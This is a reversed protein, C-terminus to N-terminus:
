LGGHPQHWLMRKAQEEKELLEQQKKKAAEVRQEEVKKANEAECKRVRGNYDKVAHKIADTFQSLQSCWGDIMAAQDEIDDQM